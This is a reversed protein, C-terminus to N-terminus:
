HCAPLSVMGAMASANPLHGIGFVTLSAAYLYKGLGLITNM